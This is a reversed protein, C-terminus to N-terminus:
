TVRRVVATQIISSVPRSVAFIAAREPSATMAQEATIADGDHEVIWTFVGSEADFVTTAVRFGHADRLVPANEWWALRRRQEDHDASLQDARLQTTTMTIANPEAETRHVWERNACQGSVTVV